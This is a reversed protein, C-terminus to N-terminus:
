RPRFIVNQTNGDGVQVGEAQRADVQYKGAEGSYGAVPRAEGRVGGHPVSANRLTQATAVSRREGAWGAVALVVAVLECFGAIVSAMGAAKGTGAVIVDIALGVVAASGVAIAAWTLM